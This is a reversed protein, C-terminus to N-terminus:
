KSVKTVKAGKNVKRTTRVKANRMTKQYVTTPDDSDNYTDSKESELELETETKEGDTADLFEDDTMDILKDKKTKIQVENFNVFGDIINTTKKGILKTLLNYMNQINNMHQNFTDFREYNSSMSKVIYNDVKFLM